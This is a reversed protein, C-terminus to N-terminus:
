RLVGFAVLVAVLAALAVLVATVRQLPTWSQESKDRRADEAAKLAAATTIETADRSKAEDGLRQVVMVLNHIEDALKGISGNIQSFHLDHQALRADIKGAAFGRDEAEKNSETM